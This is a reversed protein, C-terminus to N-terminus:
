DLTLMSFNNSVLEKNKEVEKLKGFNMQFIRDATHYYADDHTIALITIGKDKLLPIIINYFKYRFKPDQDAAWEDLVLIPKNELLAAIIALRKRQGTSLNTTSFVGDNIEIKDEIEFLELYAKLQVKDPNEIGYLEDFLYFDSFVVAFLNRYEMRNQNSVKKGDHSIYGGTERYLQLLVKILTSKGSGNGGYIYVVEGKNIQINIPGLHFKDRGQYRYKLNIIDISDFQGVASQYAGIRKEEQSLKEIVDLMKNLSIVARNLVPIHRMVAQIPGLIYLILFTSNIVTSVEINFAFGAHLLIFSLLLYFALTGFIENNLYGVLGKVNTEHAEVILNKMKRDLIDEGKNPSVNIEKLGFFIDDFNKLFKVELERVHLFLENNKNIGFQFIIVAILTIVITILFLSPSLFCMYILSSVILINSTTFDIILVAASTIRNADNHVVAYIDDKLYVTEYYKSKPLLNVIVKRINWFVNQSLDILFVSLLRRTVLFVVIIALFLGIYKLDYIQIEGNILLGTVQNLLYIFGFGTFGSFISLLILLFLYLPSKETLDIVRGIKKFLKLKLM